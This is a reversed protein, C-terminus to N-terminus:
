ERLMNLITNLHAYRYPLPSHFIDPEMRAPIPPTNQTVEEVGDDYIYPDDTAFDPGVTFLGDIDAQEPEDDQTQTKNEVLEKFGTVYAELTSNALGPATNVELCKYKFQKFPGNPVRVLFDVCGFALEVQNMVRKATHRIDAKRIGLAEAQNDSLPFLHWGNDENRIVFDQSARPNTEYIPEGNLDKQAKIQFSVSKENIIHVRVEFDALWRKVLFCGDLRAQNLPGFSEPLLIDKGWRGFRHRILWQNRDVTEVVNPHWGVTLEGLFALEQFMHHRNVMRLISQASNYVPRDKNIMARDLDSFLTSGWRILHTYEKPSVLKTGGDWGLAECLARGTVSSVKSYLIFPNM